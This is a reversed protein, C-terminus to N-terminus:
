LAVTVCETQASWHFVQSVTGTDCAFRETLSCWNYLHIILSTTSVSQLQVKIRALEDLNNALQNMTKMGEVVQNHM